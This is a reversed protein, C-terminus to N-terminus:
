LLSSAQTKMPQTADVTINIDADSNQGLDMSVVKFGGSKFATVMHRGLAGSGGLILSSKM